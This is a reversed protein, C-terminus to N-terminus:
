QLSNCEELRTVSKRRLNEVKLSFNFNFQDVFYLLVIIDNIERTRTEGSLLHAERAMKRDIEKRRKLKKKRVLLFFFVGQNKHNIAWGRM